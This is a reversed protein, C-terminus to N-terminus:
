VELRQASLVIELRNAASFKGKLAGVYHKVTKESITLRDAIQKNTMGEMLCKIVQEERMTLRLQEAERRRKETDRLHAFLQMAIEPPVFNDGALARRIAVCLDMPESTQTLIAAAGADLAKVAFDLVGSQCFVVIHSNECSKRVKGMVNIPSSLGVLDMVVVDPCNAAIMSLAADSFECSGVVEFDSLDALTHEIGTRSFPQNCLVFIKKVRPEKQYGLVTM